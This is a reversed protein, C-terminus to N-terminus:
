AAIRRQERRAKRNHTELWEQVDTMLEEITNCRHNRTVNAHLDKWQREIRNHDPCYPPLFHLRIRRGKERMWAAVQKSAYIRYNDLVVHILRATPYKKLLTQLMAIFLLGNKREGAVYEVCGTKANLAGCVYQKANKGPTPVQKQKGRNMYDPGIKPDLHIDVEDLYVAVERAGMVEIAQRIVKLRRNKAAKSWPCGV